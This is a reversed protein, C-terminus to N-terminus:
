ATSINENFEGAKMLWWKIQMEKLLRGKNIILSSVIIVETMDNYM